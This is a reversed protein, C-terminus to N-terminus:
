NDSNDESTIGCYDLACKGGGNTLRIKSVDFLICGCHGKFTPFSIIKLTTDIEPSYDIIELTEGYIASREYNFLWKEEMKPFISSFSSGILRELPLKELRALAENGYRFIWDVARAESNFVMEIDTFAFPLNEYSTYHRRYEEPTAPIGESSFGDIITQRKRHLQEILERKRRSTYGISEGSILELKKRFRHIAMTSVMCGRKVEIFDDSLEQKIETYTRRAHYVRDGSAHIEANNRKMIIYLIKDLPIVYERKRWQITLAKEEQM